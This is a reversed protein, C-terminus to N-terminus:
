RPFLDFNWARNRSCANQKQAMTFALIDNLLVTMFQPSDTYLRLHKQGMVLQQWVRQCKRTALRKHIELNLYSIYNSSYHSLPFLLKLNKESGM